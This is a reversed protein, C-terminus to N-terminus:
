KKNQMKFLELTNTMLMAITMPGVGKPVPTIFSTKEKVNEFDVDGCLKNNEDRVIGVDIVVAGQKVYNEKIFRPNGVASVLIDATKTMDRIYQTKSHCMTVTANKNLMLYSIPRGVLNSRGIVVVNKGEVEIKYEELLRMVGKPTCPLAFPTYGSALKGLNLPHLGDVDKEPKIKEIVAQSNLHKPLPLQVLIANINSDNNLEDIKSELIEQTTDAPLEIKISNFGLSQAIEHKKKVYLQSGHNDGVIIVAIGPKKGMHATEIRLQEIIKNSLTKGDIITTM